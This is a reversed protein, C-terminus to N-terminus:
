PRSRPASPRPTAGPRSAQPPTPRSAQPSAPRSAEPPAPRSPLPSASPPDAPRSQPALVEFPNAVASRAPSPTAAAPPSAPPLPPGSEAGTMNAAAGVVVPAEAGPDEAGISNRVDLIAHEGPYPMSCAQILSAMKATVRQIRKAAEHIAEIKQAAAVPLSDPKRLLLQSNGVIAALPNNVEHNLAGVTETVGRLRETELMRLQADAVERFARREASVALSNKIGAAAQAAIIQLMEVDHEDYAGSADYDQLGIVGVATGDVVMPAGLWSQSCRGRPEIGLAQAREAVNDNLLLPERTRLLHETLGNGFPRSTHQKWEGDEMYRPFTITETDREYIAIYISKCPIARQTAEYTREALTEVELLSSLAVGVDRLVAFDRDRGALMRRLDLEATIDQLAVGLTQDDGTSMFSIRFAPRPEDGVILPATSQIHREVWARSLVRVFAAGFLEAPNPKAHHQEALDLFARNADVVEGAQTVIVVPAPLNSLISHANKL